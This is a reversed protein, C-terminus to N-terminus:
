LTGRRRLVLHGIELYPPTRAAKSGNYRSPESAPEDEQAMSLRVSGNRSGVHTTIPVVMLQLPKGLSSFPSSLNKILITDGEIRVRGRTVAANLSIGVIEDGEPIDIDISAGPELRAFACDMLSSSRDIVGDGSYKSVDITYYEPIADGASSVGERHRLRAVLDQGLEFALERKLHLADLFLEDVTLKLEAAKRRTFAFGDYFLSGTSHAIKEYIQASQTEEDFGNQFPMPLLAVRCGSRSAKSVGWEVFERVQTTLIAKNRLYNQDNIATEFIVLDFDAFDVDHLFYPIIISPCGGISYRRFSAINPDSAIASAYGDRLIANSTGVLCVRM